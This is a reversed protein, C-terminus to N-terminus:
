AWASRHSRPPRSAAAVVIAELSGGATAMACDMFASMEAILANTAPGWRGLLLRRRRARPNTLPNRHSVHRHSLLRLLGTQDVPKGMGGFPRPKPYRGPDVTGPLRLIAASDAVAQLASTQGAMNANVLVQDLQEL